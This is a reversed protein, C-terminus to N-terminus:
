LAQYDVFRTELDFVSKELPNISGTYLDKFKTDMKHEIDDKTMSIKELLDVRLNSATEKIFEEIKAANSKIWHNLNQMNEIIKLDELEKVFAKQVLDQVNADGLNKSSIFLVCM